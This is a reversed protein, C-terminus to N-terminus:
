ACTTEEVMKKFEGQARAMAAREGDGMAEYVQALEFYVISNGSFKSAERICHLARATNGRLRSSISRLVWILPEDEFVLSAECLLIEVDQFAGKELLNMATEVLGAVTEPVPFPVPPTIPTDQLVTYLLAIGLEKRTHKAQEDEFSVAPRLVGRSTPRSLKAEYDERTRYYYHNVQIADNVFPASYEMGPLPFHDSTEMVHPPILEASHLGSYDKVRRPQVIAKILTCGEPEAHIFNFIQSHSGRVTLGNSGFNVWNAAVAGCGEYEALFEKINSVKKPFLLEDADIVAIWRFADQYRRMCDNYANRQLFEGPMDHVFVRGLAVLHALTERVPTVSGNDYVILADFGIRLHYEAWEALYWNEDKAMLCVACYQM